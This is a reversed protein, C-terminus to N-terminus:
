AKESVWARLLGTQVIQRTSAFGAARLIASICAPRLLAVHTDIAAMSDGEVGCLRLAEQHLGRLCADDEPREGLCLDGHILVGKPQLRGAISRFFQEREEQKLIFHSVFLALAAHFEPGASLTDLYGLHFQCRGALGARALKDKAVSMMAESPEVLVFDAGPFVGALALVEEGTGAGVSLIHCPNPLRNFLLRATLHIASMYPRLPRFREDHSPAKEKNFFEVPNEAMQM